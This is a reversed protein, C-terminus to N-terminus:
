FPPTSHQQRQMAEARACAGCIWRAFTVTRQSRKHSFLAVAVAYQAKPSYSADRLCQEKFVARFLDTSSPSRHAQERGPARLSLHFVEAYACAVPRPMNLRDGAEIWDPPEHRACGGPPAFQNVFFFRFVCGLMFGRM